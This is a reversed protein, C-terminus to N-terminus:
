ESILGISQKIKNVREEVTGTVIIHPINYNQLLQQIKLDVEKRFDEDTSRVGDGVVEFEIPFYVLLSLDLKKQLINRGERFVEQSLNNYDENLPDSHDFLYLTYSAVDIICRDSIAYENRMKNLLEGYVDFLIKQSQSDGEKNIKIEGDAAMKRVVETYFNFDKFDPDEQLVKLATTKGTGQAGTFCIKNYKLM